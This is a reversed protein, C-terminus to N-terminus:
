AQNIVHVDLQDFPIEIGAEDLDAKIGELLDFYVTWYDKGKVWVRVTYDIGSSGYATTRIFIEEDKLVLENKDIAQKMIEKIKKSDASYSLNFTLDVRRKSLESYNIITADVIQKNPIHIIKNDPTKLTTHTFNIEKVTGSTGGADVYHGVRFPHTVLITIGSAINSLTDQIALSAALGVISFTALLSSIPIGFMDAIILIAIFCLIIKIVKIVFSHLGREIKSKEVGKKVFKMIVKIAILVILIIVLKPLLSGIMKLVDTGFLKEFLDSM